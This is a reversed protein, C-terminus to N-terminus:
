PNLLLATLVAAVIILIGILAMAVGVARLMAAQGVLRGHRAHAAKGVSFRGVQRSSDAPPPALKVVHRYWWARSCYEYEGIESASITRVAGKKDKERNM